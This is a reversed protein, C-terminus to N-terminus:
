VVVKKSVLHVIDSIKQLVDKLNTFKQVKKEFYTSAICNEELIVHIDFMVGGLRQVYPRLDNKIIDLQDVLKKKEERTLNKVSIAKMLCRKFDKLVKYSFDVQLGSKTIVYSLDKKTICDYLESFDHLGENSLCVM